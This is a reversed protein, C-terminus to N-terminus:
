HSRDAPADPTNDKDAPAQPDPAAKTDPGTQSLAKEVEAPDVYRGEGDGFEALYLLMDMSPKPGVAPAAAPEARLALAILWGGAAIGVM